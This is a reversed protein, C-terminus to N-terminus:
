ILLLSAFSPFLLYNEYNNWYAITLPFDAPNLSTGPGEDKEANSSDDDSGGDTSAASGAGGSAATAAAPAEVAAAPESVAPAPAPVPAAPAAYPLYSFSHDGSVASLCASGEPLMQRAKIYERKLGDMDMTLDGCASCAKEYWTHALSMTVTENWAIGPTSAGQLYMGAAYAVAPCFNPAITLAKMYYEEAKAFDPNPRKRKVFGMDSAIVADCFKGANENVTTVTFFDLCSAPTHPEACWLKNYADEAVGNSSFGKAANGGTMGLLFQSAVMGYSYHNHGNAVNYTDRLTATTSPDVVQVNMKHNWKTCHNPKSCGLYHRGLNQCDFFYEGSAGDDLMTNAGDNFNCSVYNAESGMHVVDHYGAGSMTDVEWHLRIVAGQECMLLPHEEGDDRVVWAYSITKQPNESDVSVASLEGMTVSQKLPSSAPLEDMADDLRAKVRDKYAPAEVAVMVSGTMSDPVSLKYAVKVTQMSQLLRSRGFLGFPGHVSQTLSRLSRRREVASVSTVTCGGTASGIGTIGAASLVSDCWSKKFEADKALDAVTMTLRRKSNKMEAEWGCRNPWCFVFDYM